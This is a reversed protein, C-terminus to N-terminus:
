THPLFWLVGEHTDPYGLLSDHQLPPTTLICSGANNLWNKHLTHVALKIDKHNSTLALLLVPTESNNSLLRKTNRHLKDVILIQFLAFMPLAKSGGLSLILTWSLMLM